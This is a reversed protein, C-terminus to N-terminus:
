SEEICTFSSCIEELGQGFWKPVQMASLKGNVSGTESLQCYHSQLRQAGPM